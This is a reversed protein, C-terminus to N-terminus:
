YYMASGCTLAAGGPIEEVGIGASVVGNGTFERFSGVSPIDFGLKNLKKQVVDPSEFFRIQYIWYSSSERFNYRLRSVKLGHWLSPIEISAEVDAMDYGPGTERNRSFAPKIPHPFGDFQISSGQSAVFTEADFKVLARFLQFTSDTMECNSPDLFQVIEDLNPLEESSEKTAPQVIIQPSPAIKKLPDTNSVTPENSQSLGFGIMALLAVFAIPSLPKLKELWANRDIPQQPNVNSPERTPPPPPPNPEPRRSGSLEDARNIRAADYERRRLPNGLVVFAENLEQARASADPSRNTDPHYKLMMAKFAAKIVVEDSNPSVGLIDYYDQM